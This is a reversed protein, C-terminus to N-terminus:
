ATTLTGDPGDDGAMGLNFLHALERYAQWHQSVEDATVTIGNARLAAVVDAATAGTDAEM